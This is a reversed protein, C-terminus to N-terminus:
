VVSKRDGNYVAIAVELTCKREEMIMTLGMCCALRGSAQSDRVDAVTFKSKYHENLDSLFAKSIQYRGYSYRGNPEKKTMGVQGGEVQAIANLVTHPIEIGNVVVSFHTIAFIIVKKM